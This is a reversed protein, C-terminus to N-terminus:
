SAPLQVLWIAGLRAIELALDLFAADLGFTAFGCFGTRAKFARGACLSAHSLPYAGDVHLIEEFSTSHQKVCAM